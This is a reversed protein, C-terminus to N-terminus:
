RKAILSTRSNFEFAKRIFGVGLFNLFHYTFLLARGRKVASHLLNVLENVGNDYALRPVMVFYGM